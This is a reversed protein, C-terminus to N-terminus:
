HLEPAGRSNYHYVSTCDFIDESLSFVLVSAKHESTSRSLDSKLGPKFGHMKIMKNKMGVEARSKLLVPSRKEPMVMEVHENEM